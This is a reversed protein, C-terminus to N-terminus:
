YVQPGALLVNWSTGPANAASANFVLRLSTTSSSSKIVAHHPIFNESLASKIEDAQFSTFHCSYTSAVPAHSWNVIGAVIWGFLTEQLIPKGAGLDTKGKLLLKYFLEIGILM